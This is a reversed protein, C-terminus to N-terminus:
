YVKFFSGTGKKSRLQLWAHLFRKGTFEGGGSIDISTENLNADSVMTTSFLLYRGEPMEIIAGGQGSLGSAAAQAAPFDYFEAQFADAHVDSGITLYGADIEALHTGTKLLNSSAKLVDATKGLVNIGTWGGLPFMSFDSLSGTFLWYSKSGSATRIVADLEPLSSATFRVPPDPGQDYLYWTGNNLRGIIFAHLGYRGGGRSVYWGIQAVQGATLAKLSSHNIIESYSTLGGKSETKIGLMNTINWIAAQSLGSTPSIHLAYIAVSLIQFDNQPVVSGPKISENRMRLLEGRLYDFLKEAQEDPIKRSAALGSIISERNMTFYSLVINSAAVFGSNDPVTTSLQKDHIMIAAVLSAAGCTDFSGQSVKPM